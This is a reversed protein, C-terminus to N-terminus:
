RTYLRSTKIYASQFDLHAAHPHKLSRKNTDQPSSSEQSIKAFTTTPKNTVQSKKSPGQDDWSYWMSSYHKNMMKHPPKNCSNWGSTPKNDWQSTSHTIQHPWRNPALWSLCDELQNAHVNSLLLQGVYPILNHKVFWVESMYLSKWLVLCENCMALVGWPLCLPAPPETDTLVDCCHTAIHDQMLLKTGSWKAGPTVWWVVLPAM